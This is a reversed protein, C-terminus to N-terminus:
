SGHRLIWIGFLQARQEFTDTTVLELEVALAAGQALRVGVQLEVQSGQQLAMGYIADGRDEVLAPGALVQDLDAALQARRPAQLTAM